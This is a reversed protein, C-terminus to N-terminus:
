EKEHSLLIEKYTHGQMKNIREDTPLDNPQKWRQATTLRVAMFVSIYTDTLTGSQWEKPSIDRFSIAPDHISM